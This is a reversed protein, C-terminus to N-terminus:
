LTKKGQEWLLVSAAVSANLSEVNARMPIYVCSRCLPFYEAPVGHGENGILFVDEACVDIQSLPIADDSLAAAYVNRGGARLEEISAPVDKVTLVNVKFLSGMAARITKPNYVDACDDSLILTDTGFAAASRVIAGLNGPDRVSCLFLIRSSPSIDKMYIKICSKFFDLHKIVAIVGQPSKETSIKEFCSDALIFVGINEMKQRNLEEIVHELYQEKRSEAILVQAIPLHMQAAEDFLKIGETIFLANADRYKKEKLSAVRVVLPNSRSSIYNVDEMKM